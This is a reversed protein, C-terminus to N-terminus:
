DHTLSRALALAGAKTLSRGELRYTAGGHEWVLVNGALRPSGGAFFVDHVAGSIWLGPNGDFGASEVSTGGAALKKMFFGGYEWENLLVPEGRYTFVFSVLDLGRLHAPPLPELPPLLLRGGFEKRAQALSVVPGIGASLPREEAPPLRDVREITVGGLHLFRLIAGRSQPVAFAAALAVLAAFALGLALPRRRRRRRPARLERALHLEPTAPWDVHEALASLERALDM